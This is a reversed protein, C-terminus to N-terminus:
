LHSLLESSLKSVLYILLNVKNIKKFRLSPIRFSAPSNIQHIEISDENTRCKKTVVSGSYFWTIYIHGKRRLERCNFSIEETYLSLNPRVFLKVTELLGTETLKEKKM